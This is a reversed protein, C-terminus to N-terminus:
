EGFGDKLLEIAKMIYDCKDTINASQSVTIPTDKQYSLFVKSKIYELSRQIYAFDIDNVSSEKLVM